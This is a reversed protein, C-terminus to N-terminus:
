EKKGAIQLCPLHVTCDVSGDPNKREESTVKIVPKGNTDLHDVELLKDGLRVYNKGNIKIM